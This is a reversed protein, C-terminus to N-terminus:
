QKTVKKQSKINSFHHLHVKLFYYMQKKNVDQFDIVFLAPDPDADPDMLGLCPDASGSGSGCWYTM